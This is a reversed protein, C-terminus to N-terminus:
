WYTRIYNKTCVPYKEVTRFYPGKVRRLISVDSRAEGRGFCQVGTDSRHMIPRMVDSAGFM